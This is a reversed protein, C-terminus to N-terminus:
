SAKLLYSLNQKVRPLKRFNYDAQGALAKTRRPVGTRRAKRMGDAKSAVPVAGPNGNGAGAPANGRRDASRGSSRSAAGRIQGKWIIHPAGIHSAGPVGNIEGAFGAVIGQSRDNLIGM